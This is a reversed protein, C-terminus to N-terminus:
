EAVYSLSKRKYLIFVVLFLIEYVNNLFSHIFEKKHDMWKDLSALKVIITKSM